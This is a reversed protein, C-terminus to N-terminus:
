RGRLRRAAAGLAVRLGEYKVYFRFLALSGAEHAKNYATKKEIQYNYEACYARPDAMIQQLADWEEPWFLTKDLEDLREAERYEAAYRELFPMQFQPALLSFAFNLNHMKKYHFVGIFRKELEPNAALFERIWAYEDPMCFVKNNQNISSAANDQRYCYFAEPLAYIRKAWCFTQFWFGNDQYSAGPSEHHVIRHERIFDTRYIGTWNLMQMNFVDLNEAPNMVANYYEDHPTLKEEWFVREGDDGTKFKTFDSRVFDVDHEIAAAYLKEYMTPRIFDDSEVIGIFEGTAAEMGRNMSHGYGGNPKDIIVVRPDKAAYREIVALTGDTSGDNVCIAEINELTQGLVSDLVEPLFAEVNYCPIVVSVAPRVEPISESM